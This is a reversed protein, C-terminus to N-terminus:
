RASLKAVIGTPSLLSNIIQRLTIEQSFQSIRCLFFNSQGFFDECSIHHAPIPLLPIVIKNKSLWPVQIVDHDIIGCYYYRIKQIVQRIKLKQLLYRLTSMTKKKCIAYYLCKWYSVKFFHLTLYIM